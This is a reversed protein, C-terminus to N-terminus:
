LAENDAETDIEARFSRFIPFRPIGDETLNQFKYNVFKPLDKRNKWIRKRDEDSFGSGIEFQKGAETQCQLAGLVGDYKGQGIVAGLV